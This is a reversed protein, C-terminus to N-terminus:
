RPCPIKTLASGRAGELYTFEAAFPFGGAPCSHPVRISALGHSRGRTNSGITIALNALSADPETPLSPVAPISMALREGYPAVDSRVSGSFVLQEQVPTTGQALVYFTPSLNEPPGLFVRLSINERLTQSGDLTEALAHGHGLQSRQPCGSAGHTMLRAATCSHLSPMDLSMGAPLRVVAKVVPSPEGLAENRYDVTVTLASRAALRNPSLSAAISASTAAQASPGSVAGLTLLLLAM